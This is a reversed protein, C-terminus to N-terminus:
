FLQKMEGAEKYVANTCSKIYPSLIYLYGVNEEPYFYIIGYNRNPDTWNRIIELNIKKKIRKPKKGDVIIVECYYMEGQFVLKLDINYEEFLIEYIFQNCKLLNGLQCFVMGGQSYGCLIEDKGAENKEGMVVSIKSSCSASIKKLDHLLKKQKVETKRKEYVARRLKVQYLSNLQLDECYRKGIETVPYYIFGERRKGGSIQPNSRSFVDMRYPDVTLM